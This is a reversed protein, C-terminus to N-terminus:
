FSSTVVCDSISRHISYYNLDFECYTADPIIGVKSAPLLEDIQM